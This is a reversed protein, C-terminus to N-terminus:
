RATPPDMLMESPGREQQLRAAVEESERLARVVNLGIIKKVDEDSYGREFLEVLLRPFTSADELGIPGPPMGDYDSGIGIHDIGAVARVHDIHDAVQELTPSPRPNERRWQQINRQIEGGDAPDTFERRLRALEEREDVQWQRLPESTYSPFFTVMVVGGNASMRQLVDDPVNRPHACIAFASSHSFIVPAEAVDLADHMTKHSVHSLDVLMGLRNMERVVERGFENLGGLVEEDTASDAWFLNLGHTLTMYRAGANYLQRLVALSNEISHGGEMGMLSAIRGESHIRIIDDATLAIELDDSYREVMRHVLDIQEFVTRADGPEGGRRRVPIYVSWFVGGVGGARLRPIDTHTPRDLQTLDAALDLGDLRNQVRTRYQWPIDIHGDVLPAERLVRHARELLEAKADHPHPPAQASAPAICPGAWPGALSVSLLAAGLLTLPRFSTTCSM